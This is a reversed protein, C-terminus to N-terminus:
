IYYFAFEMFIYCDQSKLEFFRGQAVNVCRGLNSAYNDPIKLEQVWRYMDQRQTSSLTYSAKPKCLRGDGLQQLNLELHRYYKQLDMRAKGNDKTRDIEMVTNMINDFVNKEVHMVDLCHHGM